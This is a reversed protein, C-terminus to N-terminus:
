EQNAAFMQLGMSNFRAKQDDSLSNYFDALAPEVTAVAQLMAQLRKGVAALRSPPTAPLESPCATKITDGAQALASQLATLKAQQADDPKVVADIKDGPWAM